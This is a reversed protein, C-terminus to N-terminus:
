IAYVSVLGGLCCAAMVWIGAVAAIRRPMAFPLFPTAVLLATALMM